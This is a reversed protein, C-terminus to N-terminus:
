YAQDWVPQGTLKFTLDQRIVDGLPAAASRGTVIASCSFRRNASWNLQLTGTAREAPVVYSAPNFNLTLTVEGADTLGALFTRFQSASLQHTSDPTDTSSGGVNIDVVEATLGPFVVSIGLSVMSM